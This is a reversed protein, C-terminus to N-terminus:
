ELKEEIFGTLSLFELLSITPEDDPENKKKKEKRQSISYFKSHFWFPFPSVTQM